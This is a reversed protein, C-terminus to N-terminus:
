AYTLDEKLVTTYLHEKVVLEIRLQTKKMKIKKRKMLLPVMVGLYHFITAKSLRIDDWFNNLSFREAQIQCNATILMAFIIFCLM